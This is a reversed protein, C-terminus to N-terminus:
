AIQAQMLRKNADRAIAERLCQLDLMPEDRHITSLETHYSRSRWYGGRHYQTIWQLDDSCRILRIDNLVYVIRSYSNSSENRSSKVTV